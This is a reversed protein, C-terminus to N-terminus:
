KGSVPGPPQPGPGAKSPDKSGAAARLDQQPMFSRNLARMTLEIRNDSGTKRMLRGVHAKVTREEIGLQRAIERNSRAQLILELVQQERETLHPPANTLSSDPIKLLRDILKSLLRRPAWISGSTVAEIAQRVTETDATLDLYGRAGAIISELVLEDNGEPGIIILRLAPRARRISDLLALGAPSGHLDIVLYELSPHLLMEQLTGAIPRLPADGALSPQDFISMLGELRLPQDSVLGIEIPETNRASSM